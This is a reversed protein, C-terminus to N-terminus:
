TYPLTNQKTKTHKSKIKEVCGMDETNQARNHFIKIFSHRTRQQKKTNKSKKKYTHFSILQLDKGKINQKCLFM